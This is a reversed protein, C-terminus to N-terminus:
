YKVKTFMISADNIAVQLQGLANKTSKSGHKRKTQYKMMTFVTDCPVFRKAFKPVSSFYVNKGVFYCVVETEDGLGERTLLQRTSKNINDIERLIIGPFAIGAIRNINSSWIFDKKKSGYLVRNRFAEKHPVLTTLIIEKKSHEQIEHLDITAVSKQDDEHSYKTNSGEPYPSAPPSYGDYFPAAFPTKM